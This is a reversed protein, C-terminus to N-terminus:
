FSLAIAIVIGWLEQWKSSSSPWPPRHSDQVFEGLSPPLSPPLPFPDSSCVKSKLIYIYIYTYRKSALKQRVRKALIASCQYDRNRVFVVAWAPLCLRSAFTQLFDTLRETVWDSSGFLAKARHYQALLIRAREKSSGCFAASGQLQSSTTWPEPVLIM